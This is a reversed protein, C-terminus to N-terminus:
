DEGELEKTKLPNRSPRLIYLHSFVFWKVGRRLPSPSVASTCVPCMGSVNYLVGTKLRQPFVRRLAMKYCPCTKLRALLAEREVDPKVTQMLVLRSLWM